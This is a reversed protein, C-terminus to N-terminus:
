SENYKEAELEDFIKHATRETINVASAIARATSQPHRAICALVLSHNTICTWQPIKM